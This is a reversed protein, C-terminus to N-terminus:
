VKEPEIHNAQAAVAQFLAANMGPKDRMPDFSTRSVADAAAEPPGATAAAVRERNDRELSRDRLKTPGTPSLPRGRAYPAAYTTWYGWAM